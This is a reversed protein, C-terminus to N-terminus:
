HVPFSLAFYIPYCAFSGLWRFSDSGLRSLMAYGGRIYDERHLWALALFHPMQWFYLASALLWAGPELQGANGLNTKDRWMKTMSSILPHKTCNPEVTLLWSVKSLIQNDPCPFQSPQGQLYIACCYKCCIDTQSLCAIPNVCTGAAASWGMLPPIAGVVAGVWTNCASVAKLPTYVGAYLGINGLGLM